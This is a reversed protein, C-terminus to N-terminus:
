HKAYVLRSLSDKGCFMGSSIRCTVFSPESCLTLSCLSEDSRVIHYHCLMPALLMPPCLNHQSFNLRCASSTQQFVQIAKFFVGTFKKVSNPAQMRKM